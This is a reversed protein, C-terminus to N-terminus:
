GKAALATAGLAASTLALSSGGTAVAAAATLAFSTLANAKEARRNFDAVEKQFILARERNMTNIMDANAAIQAQKIVAQSQTESGTALGRRAANAEITALSQSQQFARQGQREVYGLRVTDLKANVDAMQLKYNQNSTSISTAASIGSGLLDFDINSSSFNTDAM